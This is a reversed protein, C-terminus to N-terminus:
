TIAITLSSQVRVAIVNKLADYVGAAVIKGDHVIVLGDPEHRFAKAAGVLFPDDTAGFWREACLPRRTKRAPTASMVGSTRLRAGRGHRKRPRLLSAIWIRQSAHEPEIEPEGRGTGLEPAILRLACLRMGANVDPADIGFHSRYAVPDMIQIEGRPTAISIGSSTSQLEREGTFASMFIHHDTPNDAVFM